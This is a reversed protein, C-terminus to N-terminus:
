VEYHTSYISTRRDIVQDYSKWNQMFIFFLFYIGYVEILSKLSIKIQQWRAVVSVVRAYAYCCQPMRSALKTHALVVIKM